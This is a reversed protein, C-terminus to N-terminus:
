AETSTPAPRSALQRDLLYVAPGDSGIMRLQDIIGIVNAEEEVQENIFWQLVIQLPYDKEALALEYLKNIRDTISIEHKRVAEFVALPSTFTRAPEKIQQLHVSAARSHLFDYLKTAHLTEEQWQTKLWHAFGPYNNETCWASMSLYLYASEFEAQIQENIAKVLKAKM